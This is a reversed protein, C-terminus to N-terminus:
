RRRLSEFERRSVGKVVRGFRRSNLTTQRKVVHSVFSLLLLFLLWLQVEKNALNKGSLLHLGYLLSELTGSYM